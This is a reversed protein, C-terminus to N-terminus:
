ASSSESDEENLRRTRRTGHGNAMSPHRGRLWHQMRRLWGEEELIRYLQMLLIIFVVVLTTFALIDRTTWYPHISGVGALTHSQSQAETEPLPKLNPKHLCPVPLHVGRDTLYISLKHMFSYDTDCAGLVVLNPHQQHFLKYDFKTLRIDELYLRQLNPLSAFNETQVSILHNYSIDLDTLRNPFLPSEPPLNHLQNHALNLHTLSPLFLSLSSLNGASFWLSDLNNKSLDLHQLNWMGNLLQSTANGELLNEHLDLKIVSSKDGIQLLTLANSAAHLNIVGVDITLRRLGSNEIQLRHVSHLHLEELQCNSLELLRLDTLGTLSSPEFQAFKNGNLLLTQLKNNKAFTRANIQGIENDSLDLHVLNPLLEFADDTLQSIGNGQLGLVRLQSLGEFAKAHVVQLMNYGLQLVELQQLAVFQQDKLRSIHIRQLQLQRLQPIAQFDEKNVHYVSSNQLLLVRLNPVLRLLEVPMSRMQCDGLLLEQLQLVQSGSYRLPQQIDSKLQWLSCTADPCSASLNLRNNDDYVITPLGQLSSVGLLVLLLLLLSQRHM